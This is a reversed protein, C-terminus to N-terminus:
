THCEGARHASANCEAASVRAIKAEQSPRFSASLSGVFRKGNPSYRASVSADRTTEATRRTAPACRSTSLTDPSTEGAHGGPRLM